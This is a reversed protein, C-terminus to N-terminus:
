LKHLEVSLAFSPNKFRYISVTYVGKVFLWYRREQNEHQEKVMFGSGKLEALLQDCCFSPKIDFHVMQFVHNKDKWQGKTLSVELSSNKYNMTTIRQRYYSQSSQKEFSEAEMVELTREHSMNAIKIMDAINPSWTSNGSVYDCAGLLALLFIFLYSRLLRKMM